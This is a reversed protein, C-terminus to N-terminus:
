KTSSVVLLRRELLEHVRTISVGAVLALSNTTVLLTEGSGRKKRSRQGHVNMAQISIDFSETAKPAGPISGRQVRLALAPMPVAYWVLQRTQNVRLWPMM